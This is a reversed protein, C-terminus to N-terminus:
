NLSPKFIVGADPPLHPKLGEIIGMGVEERVQGEDICWVVYLTLATALPELEGRGRRAFSRQAINITWPIASIAREVPSKDDSSVLPQFGASHEFLTLPGELMTALRLDYGSMDRLFREISESLSMWQTPGVPERTRVPRPPEVHALDVLRDDIRLRVLRDFLATVVWRISEVRHLWIAPRGDDTPPPEYDLLGFEALPILVRRTLADHLQWDPNIGFESLLHGGAWVAEDRPLKDTIAALPTPERLLTGLRFLTFAIHDQMADDDHYMDASAINFRLFYTSFLLDYLESAHRPDRLREGKKTILVKGHLTRALGAIRLVHRLALILWVQDEDLTGRTAWPGVLDDPFELEEVMQRVFRRNLLGLKKTLPQPSQALAELMLQANRVMRTSQAEEDSLKQLELPSQEAGLPYSALVKLAERSVPIGPRDAKVPDDPAM